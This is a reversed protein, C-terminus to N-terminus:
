LTKRGQGLMMEELWSSPWHTTVVHLRPFTIHENGGRGYRRGSYYAGNEQIRRLFSPPYYNALQAVTQPRFGKRELIMGSLARPLEQLATEILNQRSRSLGMQEVPIPGPLADLVTRPIAGNYNRTLETHTGFFFLPEQALVYHKGDFSIKFCTFIGDIAATQTIYAMRVLGELSGDSGVVAKLAVGKSVPRHRLKAPM